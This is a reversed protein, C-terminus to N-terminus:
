KAGKLIKSVTSTSIGMKEAIQAISFNSVSMAKIRNIQAQSLGKQQKPMARERLIDPDSNDLIKKLKNESIAGAQIAEWEKDSININRNRRSIAGVEERAKTMERQSLKKIDDKKMNPDAEIKRQINTNAIRTATRERIRNKEANNLQTELSSVEKAYIKAANKDYKLNGTKKIELRAQNALMKMSNAYDAYLLEMPHKRSSVLKNADDYISM